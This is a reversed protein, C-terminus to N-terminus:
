LAVYLTEVKLQISGLNEQVFSPNIVDSRIYEAVIRFNYPRFLVKLGFGVGKRNNHGRSGSNYRAPATDAENFFQLYYPSVVLGSFEMDSSLFFEQGRNFTPEAKINKIRYGGARLKFKDLSCFCIEGGVTWGEFEYAFYSNGPIDGFVTNGWRSSEYAVVAPLDFFRFHSSTVSLEFDKGLAFGGQLTETYFFPTKEKEVRRTSFSNFTPISQSAILRFYNQKSGFRLTESIGPFARDTILLPTALYGQGLAGAKFELIELPRLRVVVENALIGSQRSDNFRTQLQSSILQLKGSAYMDFNDTFSYTLRPQLTFGVMTGEDQGESFSEGGIGLAWEGSFRSIQPPEEISVRPIEEQANATWKITAALLVTFLFL